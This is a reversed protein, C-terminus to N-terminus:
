EKFPFSAIIQTDSPSVAEQLRMAVLFLRNATTVNTACWFARATMTMTRSILWENTLLNEPLVFSTRVCDGQCEGLPKPASDNGRFWLPLQPGPGPDGATQPPRAPYGPIDAPDM